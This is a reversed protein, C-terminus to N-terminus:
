GDLGRKLGIVASVAVLFLSAWITREPFHAFGWSLVLIFVCVITVVGIARLWNGM